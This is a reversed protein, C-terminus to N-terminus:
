WDSEIDELEKEIEARMKEKQTLWLLYKIFIVPLLVIMVVLGLRIQSIKPGDRSNTQQHGTRQYQTQQFKYHQNHQYYQNYQQYSQEQQQKQQEEQEQERYKKYQRQRPEQEQKRKQRNEEEQKPKEPADRLMEYATSIELFRQNALPDTTNLDPHYLKAKELFAKKIENSSANRKVGLVKHPNAIRVTQYCRLPEYRLRIFNVVANRSVKFM